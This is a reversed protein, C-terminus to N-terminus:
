TMLTDPEVGDVILRIEVAKFSAFVSVGPRLGMRDVSGITVEAVVPPDSGVRVRAREGHIAVEDIPGRLVNRASGEPEREHLVVDAPRLVALAEDREEVPLHEPWALTLSGQPTELVGAGQEVPRLRGAFLNVGVLDAAYASLPARRIEEPTGTQVVRGRELVAVRDALTLADVPDHAVVICPGAFAATERRLLARLDARAGVDVAALPEDLLLLRPGAVLARALAVKQRQGGSLVSPKAGPDVDPAVRSLLLEARRRAEPRRIGRVRLPFAVDDRVRLHPFLLGDQFTVGASRREPPLGRLDRGDLVVTGDDIPLLGALAELLTSKGAGNPGVVALTEGDAVALEVHLAFGGRRVRFAAVFPM